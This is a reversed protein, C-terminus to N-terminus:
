RHLYHPVKWQDKLAVTGFMVSISSAKDKTCKYTLQALFDYAVFCLKIHRYLLSSSPSGTFLLIEQTYPGCFQSKWALIYYLLFLIIWVDKYMFFFNAYLHLTYYESDWAFSISQLLGIFAFSLLPTFMFCSVGWVNKELVFVHTGEKVEYLYSSKLLVCTYFCIVFVNLLFNCWDSSCTLLKYSFFHLLIQLTWSLFFRGIL